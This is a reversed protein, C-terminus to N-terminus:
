HPARIGSLDEPLAALAGLQHAMEGDGARPTKHTLPLAIGCVTVSM